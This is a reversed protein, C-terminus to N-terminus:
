DAKLRAFRKERRSLLWRLHGEQVLPLPEPPTDSTTQTASDGPDVNGVVEDIRIPM